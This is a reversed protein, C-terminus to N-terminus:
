LWVVVTTIGLMLVKTLDTSLEKCFKYVAKDEDKLRRTEEILAVYGERLMNQVDEISSIKNYTDLKNSLDDIKKDINLLITEM